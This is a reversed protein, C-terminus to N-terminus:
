FIQEAAAADAKVKTVVASIRPGEVAVAPDLRDLCFKRTPAPLNLLGARQTNPGAAVRKESIGADKPRHAEVGAFRVDVEVELDVEGFTECQQLHRNAQGCRRAPPCVANGTRRDVALRAWALPREEAPRSQPDSRGVDTEDGVVRIAVADVARQPLRRLQAARLHGPTAALRRDIRSAVM